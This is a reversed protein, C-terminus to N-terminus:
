PALTIARQYRRAVLPIRFSKPLNGRAGRAHAQRRRLDATAATLMRSPGSSAAYRSTFRAAGYGTADHGGLGLVAFYDGDEVPANSRVRARIAEEDLPSSIAKPSTTQPRARPRPRARAAREIQASAACHLQARVVVLAALLVLAFAIPLADANSGSSRPWPAARRRTWRGRTTPALHAEVVLKANPGDALKVDVGLRERRWRPDFVSRVAEVFTAVSPAAM